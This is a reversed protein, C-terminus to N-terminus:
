KRSVAYLALGLVVAAGALFVPKKYMPTEAAVVADDGIGSCGCGGSMGRRVARARTAGPSFWSSRPTFRTPKHAAHVLAGLVGDEYVSGLVGDQYVGSMARMKGLSGDAFSKTNGQFRVAPYAQSFLGDRFASTSSSMAM